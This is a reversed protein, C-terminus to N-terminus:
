ETPFHFFKLFSDLHILYQPLGERITVDSPPPPTAPLPRDFSILLFLYWTYHFLLHHTLPFLLYYTVSTPDYM